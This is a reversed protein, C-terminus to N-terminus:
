KTVTGVAKIATNGGMRTLAILCLAIGIIVYLVNVWHGADSAWKLVNDVNALDTNYSTGTPDPTSGDATQGPQLDNDILRRAKWWQPWLHTKRIPVRPNAAEVIMDNGLYMQVHGADPFVLDGPQLEAKTVPKGMGILTYTTPRGNFHMGAGIEYAKWVLGSCDYSNPGATAWVYPKGVQALAYQIAANVRANANMSSPM